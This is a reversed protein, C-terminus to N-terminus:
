VASPLKSPTFVTEEGSHDVEVLDGEKIAGKLLEEALPDEVLRQIARHIPRAGFRPEYGDTIIRTVMRDTFEIAIAQEALRLKIKKLQLKVIELLDDKTLSHFVVTEDLRNLFEPNFLHKVEEMVKGKMAFYDGTFADSGFGIANIDKIDRTGLNSTMIVVTNRFSVTRGLSDTLRGEDM